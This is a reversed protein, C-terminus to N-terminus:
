QRACDGCLGEIYVTMRTVKFRKKLRQPLAIRDFPEYHFDVIRRCNTCKFHQHKALNGDFRKTDGSGEVVFAAGIDSLTVLTRNVTDFSIHPFTRRVKEFVKKAGPHEKSGALAKYVAMRQPTVKLRARRCRQRFADMEVRPRAAKARGASRSALVM